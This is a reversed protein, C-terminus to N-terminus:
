LANIISGAAVSLYDELTESEAFTKTQRRDKQEIQFNKIMQQFEPTDTTYITGMWKGFDTENIEKIKDKGFINEYIISSAAMLGSQAGEGGGFWYETIDGIQEFANYLNDKFNDWNTGEYEKPKTNVPQQSFFETLYKNSM